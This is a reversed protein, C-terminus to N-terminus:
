MPVLEGAVEDAVLPTPRLPFRRDLRFYRLCHEGSGGADRRSERSAIQGQSGKVLQYLHIGAMM